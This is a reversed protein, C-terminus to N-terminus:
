NFEGIKSGHTIPKSGHTRWVSQSSAATTWQPSSDPSGGGGEAARYTVGTSDTVGEVRAGVGVWGGVEGEEAEEM